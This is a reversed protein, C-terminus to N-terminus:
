SQKDNESKRREERVGGSEEGGDVYSTTAKIRPIKETCSNCSFLSFLVM